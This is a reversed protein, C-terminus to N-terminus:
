FRRRRENKGSYFLGKEYYMRKDAQVKVVEYPINGNEVFVAGISASKGKGTILRKANDVQATLADESKVFSMAVFEDGGMRYVNEGGFVETLSDVVARIMEDGAEHGLTDNVTKLGNIDCMVYGFTGAKDLQENEFKEFARRNGVGTMMDNYSFGLLERNNNRQVILQGFFYALLRIIEAIEEFSMDSHINEVGCVGVRKGGAEFPGAICNHIGRSSLADYLDLDGSNKLDDVKKIIAHGYIDADEFVKGIFGKLPVSKLKNMQSAVGDACWEYTNAYKGGPIEEFLYVRDVNLERGLFELMGRINEEPDESAVSYQLISNVFSNRAMLEHENSWWYLFQMMMSFIFCCLGIRLFTGFTKIFFLGTFYLTMDIVAGTIVCISGIAFYKIEREIGNDRCYKRDELFIYIMFAFTTIYSTYLLPILNHMDIGFIFRLIFLLASIFAWFWFGISYYIKKGRVLFSTTFCVVPYQALLIVLYNLIRLGIIRDTVLQLLGTGTLCWIGMLVASLGLAMLDYPLAHKQPIFCFVGMMFIGFFIILLSVVTPLVTGKLLMREYEDASGIYVKEIYGEGRRKFVSSVEIRLERGSDQPTLIFENKHDGYGFGTINEVADFGYVWTDDIYVAVEANHSIFCFESNHDIGNPLKKVFTLTEGVEAGVKDIVMSGAGDLVFGDSWEILSGDSHGTAKDSYFCAYVVVLLLVLAYLINIVLRGKKDKREEQM